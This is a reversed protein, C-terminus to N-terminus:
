KKKKDIIISFQDKKQWYKYVLHFVGWGFLFIAYVPRDKWITLGVVSSLVLMVILYNTMMRYFVNRKTLKDFYAELKKPEQNFKKSIRQMQILWLGMSLFIAGYTSMLFILIIEVVDVLM